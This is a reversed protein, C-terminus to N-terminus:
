GHDTESDQAPDHRTLVESLDAGDVTLLRGIIDKAKELTQTANVTATETEGAELAYVVTALGQVVNDHIELAQQQKQAADRLAVELESKRGLARDALLWSVMGTTSCVTAVLAIIPGGPGQENLGSFLLAPFFGGVFGYTFWVFAMSVVYSLWDHYLTAVTVLSVFALHSAATGGSVWVLVVGGTLLALTAFLPRLEDATRETAALVGFLAAVLVPLSVRIPEIGSRSAVSLALPLIALGLSVVALHRARLYRGTVDPAVSWAKRWM